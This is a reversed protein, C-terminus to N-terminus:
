SPAPHHKALFARADQIADGPVSSCRDYTDVQWWDWAEVVDRVTQAAEDRERMLQRIASAGAQALPVTLPSCAQLREVLANLEEDSM